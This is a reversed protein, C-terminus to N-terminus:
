NKIQLGAQNASMKGANRLFIGAKKSEPNRDRRSKACVYVQTDDYAM